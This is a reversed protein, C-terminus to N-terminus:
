YEGPLKEKFDDYDASGSVFTDRFIAEGYITRSICEVVLLM